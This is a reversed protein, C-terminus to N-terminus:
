RERTPQQKGTRSTALSPGEEVQELKMGCKTCTSPKDSQVEPHMPCQYTAM